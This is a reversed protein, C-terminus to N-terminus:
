SLNHNELIHEFIETKLNAFEAECEGVKLLSRFYVSVKEQKSRDIEFHGLIVTSIDCVFVVNEKEMKVKEIEQEVEKKNEEINSKFISKFFGQKGAM